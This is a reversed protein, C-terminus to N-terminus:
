PGIIKMTICFSIRCFLFLVIGKYLSKKRAADRSIIDLNYTIFILIYVKLFEFVPDPAHKACALTARACTKRPSPNVSQVFLPLPCTHFM